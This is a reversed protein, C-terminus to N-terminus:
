EEAPEEPQKPDQAQKLANYEAALHRFEKAGTEPVKRGAKLSKEAQLLPITGLWANLGLLILILAAVVVILVRISSLESNLRGTTEQRANAMLKEMTSLSARLNNRIVEKHAYYEGGMVMSQALEMKEGPSKQEDETRLEVGKLTEPYDRIEKADVVLKMAYYETYMLKNSENLASQIQDILSQETDNEAMNVIANERRKSTFAEEFYNEMYQPDGDLTFRQVMETLYDSAEMVDHAADQRVLYNGTAKNLANFVSSSKQVSFVLLLVMLAGLVLMAIHTVRISIGGTKAANAKM